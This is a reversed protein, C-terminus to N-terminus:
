SHGEVHEQTSVHGKWRRWVLAESLTTYLQELRHVKIGLYSVSVKERERESQRERERERVCM